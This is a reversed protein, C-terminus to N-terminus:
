RPVTEVLARSIQDKGAPPAEECLPFPQAPQLLRLAHGSATQPTEGTDHRAEVELDVCVRQGCDRARKCFDAIEGSFFFQEDLLGIREFVSRRALFVAGPVYDVDNLPYGPEHRISQPDAAIRTLAGQAINKGGILCQTSGDPQREHIAPGLVAIDSNAEMRGLLRMMAVEDIEADSNLLLVYFEGSRTAQEIGLNNGGSYGRNINSCILESADLFSSLTASSHSTSENDVVYLHPKLGSWGRVM